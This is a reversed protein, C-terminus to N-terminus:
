FGIALRAFFESLNDDTPSGVVKEFSSKRYEALINTAFSDKEFLLYNGGLSYRNELEGNTEGPVDDKFAEYRVAVELPAM